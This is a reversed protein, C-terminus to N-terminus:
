CEANSRRREWYALRAQRIKEKHEPSLPRSVANVFNERHEETWPRSSEQIKAKHEPSLPKGKRAASIKAKAEESLPKGKQGRRRRNSKAVAPGVQKGIEDYAHHCKRCLPRFHEFPDMGDTGHIWSWHHAQRACLTCDYSSAKGRERYVRDHKTRYGIPRSSDRVLVKEDKVSKRHRGCVCGPLCARHRDCAVDDVCYKCKGM